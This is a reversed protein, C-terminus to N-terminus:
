VPKTLPKAQSGVPSKNAECDDSPVTFTQDLLVHCHSCVTLSGNSPQASDVDNRRSSQDGSPVINVVACAFFLVYYDNIKTDFSVNIEYIEQRLKHLAHLM